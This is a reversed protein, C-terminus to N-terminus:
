LEFNGVCDAVQKTVFCAVLGKGQPKSELLELELWEKNQKVLWPGYELINEKPRTFSLVRLWGKIGYVGVIKGIVCCNSEDQM